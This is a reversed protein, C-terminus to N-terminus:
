KKLKKIEFESLTSFVSKSIKIRPRKERKVNIDKQENKLEM